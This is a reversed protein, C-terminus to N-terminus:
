RRTIAESGPCCNLEYIIKKWLHILATSLYGKIYINKVHTLILAKIRGYLTLLIFVCAALQSKLYSQPRCACVNTKSSVIIFKM